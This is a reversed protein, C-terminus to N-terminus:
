NLNDQSNNPEHSVGSEKPVRYESGGSASHMPGSPPPRSMDPLPYWEAVNVDMGRTRYAPTPSYGQNNNGSTNPTSSAYRSGGSSASTNPSTTFSSNHTPPNRRIERNKSEEFSADLQALARAVANTDGYNITVLADRARMPLQQVVSYNIEYQDLKPTFYQAVSAQKHFYSQMSQDSQAYRRASWQAKLRVQTATSYFEEIFAVKFAEFDAYANNQAKYWDRARGDLLTELVLLKCEDQVKKVRFYKEVQEVFENPNVTLDNGFRPLKVNLNMSQIGHVLGNLMGANREGGETANSNNRLQENEERLRRIERDQAERAERAERMEDVMRLRLAEWEGRQRDLREREVRLQEEMIAFQNPPDIPLNRNANDTMNVEHVIDNGNANHRANDGSKAKSRTLM